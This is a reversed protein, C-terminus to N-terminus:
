RCFWRCTVIKGILIATTAILGAAPALLMLAPHHDGCWARRRILNRFVPSLMPLAGM